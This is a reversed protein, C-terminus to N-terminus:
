DMYAKSVTNVCTMMMCSYFWFTEQTLFARGTYSHGFSSLPLEQVETDKLNPFDPISPTMPTSPPEDNLEEEKDAM